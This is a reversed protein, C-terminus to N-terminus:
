SIPHLLQPDLSVKRREVSTEPAGFFLAAIIVFHLLPISHYFLGDISSFAVFGVLTALLVGKGPDLDRRRISSIAPGIAPWFWGIAVSGIAFLGLVGFELLLQLILNHAQVTYPNCCRSILYGEPGFGLIPRKAIAAASDHWISVRSQAELISRQGMEHASDARDFLSIASFWDRGDVWFATALAVVLALCAMPLLKRWGTSFLSLALVFLIWAALAGRSGFLVIGFLSATALLLATMRFNKGLVILGSAACAAIFGHYGFHRVNSFYPPTAAPEANLAVSSAVLAAILFGVHVAAIALMVLPTVLAISSRLAVFLVVGTVVFLYYTRLRVMSNEVDPSTAASLFMALAAIIALVWQRRTPVPVAPGFILVPLLITAYFAAREAVALNYTPVHHQFSAISSYLAAGSAAVILGTVAMRGRQSLGARGSVSDVTM